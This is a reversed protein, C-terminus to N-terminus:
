VGIILLEKELLRWRRASLRTTRVTLHPKLHQLSTFSTLASTSRLSAFQLTTTFHALTILSRVITSDLILAISRALLSQPSTALLSIPLPHMKTQPKPIHHPTDSHLTTICRPALCGRAASFWCAAHAICKNWQHVSFVGLVFTPIEMNIRILFRRGPYITLFDQIFVAFWHLLKKIRQSSHIRSKLTEKFTKRRSEQM